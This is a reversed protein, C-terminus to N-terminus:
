RIKNAPPHSDGRNVFLPFRELGTEFRRRIMLHFQTIMERAEVLTPVGAEIAAVMVTEAKTLL